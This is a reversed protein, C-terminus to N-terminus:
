KTMFPTINSWVMKIMIEAYFELFTKLFTLKTQLINIFQERQLYM